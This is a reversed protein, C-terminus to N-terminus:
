FISNSLIFDCLSQYAKCTKYKWKENKLNINAYGNNNDTNNNNSKSIHNNNKIVITIIMIVIIM